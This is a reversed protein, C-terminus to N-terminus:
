EIAALLQRARAVHNPRTAYKAIRELEARSDRLMGQWAKREEVVDTSDDLRFYFGMAAPWAETNFVRAVLTYSGPKLRVRTGEPVRQGCIWVDPPEQPAWVRVVRDRDNAFTARFYAGKGFAVKRFHASEGLEHHGYIGCNGHYKRSIKEGGVDVGSEDTWQEKAIEGIKDPGGLAALVEDARAIDFYGYVEMPYSIFGSFEGEGAPRGPTRPAIELPVTDEPAQAELDSLMYAANVDAEYTRGADGTYGLCVVSPDTRVYIRDGEFVPPGTWSKEVQSKGVLLGNWRKQVVGCLSGRAVRGAFVSGHEGIFVYDGAVTIPVYQRGNSQPPIGRWVGSRNQHGTYEHRVVKRRGIDFVMYGEPGQGGGSGYLLGESFAIGAEVATPIPSAWQRRLGASDRDYMVPRLATLFRDLGTQYLENGGVTPPGYNRDLLWIQSLIKGDEARVMTGGETVVVDMEERGNTAKMLVPSGTVAFHYSPETRWLERGTAADLGILRTFDGGSSRGQGPRESRAGVEVVFVRGALVPSSCVLYGGEAPIRTMWRRNGDRDFCAAVGTGFKVWVQTGDTVPSAYSYGTWFGSGPVGFRGHQRLFDYYGDGGGGKDKINGRKGSVEGAVRGIEAKAEAKSLGRKMLAAEREAYDRGLQQLARRAKAYESWRRRSEEVKDPATFELVNCEREWLVQGTAKDLCFVFHPEGLVIIREGLIVVPAKSSDVNSNYGGASELELHTRWIVNMGTDLDWATVPRADPYTGVNNNRYGAVNSPVHRLDKQKEAIAALRAQAAAPDLPQGRVAVKVWFHCEASRPDVRRDKGSGVFRKVNDCRVIVTNRGKRFSAKGWAVHEPAAPDEHTAASGGTTTAAALRDNVWLRGCDDAGIAVWLDVEKSSHIVTRAYGYGNLPGSFKLTSGQRGKESRTWPRQLGAEIQEEMRQWSVFPTEPVCSEENRKLAELDTLYHAQPHDMFEPLNWSVAEPQNAPFPGVIQWNPVFLWRQSGSAEADDPLVNGNTGDITLCGHGYWPGFDVDAAAEQAGRPAAGLDPLAAAWVVAAARMWELCVQMDALRTKAAPDTEIKVVSKAQMVPKAAVDDDELGLDFSVADLSPAKRAAATDAVAKESLFNPLVCRGAAWAAAPPLSQTLVMDLARFQRLFLKAGVLLEPAAALDTAGEVARLTPIGPLVQALSRREGQVARQATSTVLLDADAATSRTKRYVGTLRGATEKLTLEIQCSLDAAPTAASRGRAVLPISMSVRNSGPDDGDVWVARPLRDLGEIWARGFLPRNNWGVLQLRLDSGDLAMPLIMESITPEPLNMARARQPLHKVVADWVAAIAQADRAFADHVAEGAEALRGCIAVAVLLTLGCPCLPLPLKGGYRGSRM